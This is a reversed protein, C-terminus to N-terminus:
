RRVGEYYVWMPSSRLVVVTLLLIVLFLLWAMASAYGMSVYTFAQRYLYLMYFLTSNNPGGETMVYVQTFIQFSGIIGMVLNFFITPTLMPVTVFRFKHWSNAGDVAAADYLHSPVGQLGALFILIVTGTSWVSMLILAPKSWSPSQLWSPGSIGIFELFGNVLGFRPDLVWLWLLSVAVGSTISPLYYITRMARMGPLNQNLLLAFFLAVIIGLPIALFSYYATNYLSLSILSDQFLKIYNNLGIWRMESTVDYRTFSLWFSAVMPGGTFLFFGVLWPSAFLYGRLHRRLSRSRSANM